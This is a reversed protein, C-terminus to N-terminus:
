LQLSWNCRWRNIAEVYRPLPLDPNLKLRQDHETLAKAKANLQDAQRLTVWRGAQQRTEMTARRLASWWQFLSDKLLAKRVEHRDKFGRGNTAVFKPEVRADFAEKV